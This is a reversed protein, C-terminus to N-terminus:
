DSSGLFKIILGLQGLHYLDHHLMGRIVFKYEHEAGYDTDHYKENLFPDEKTQLLAILRALSNQHDAKIQDWGLSHLKEIPLWNAGCEVTM